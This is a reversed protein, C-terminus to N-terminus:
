GESTRQRGTRVRCTLHLLNIWARRLTKIYIM